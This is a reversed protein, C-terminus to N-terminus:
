VAITTRVLKVTTTANAATFLLNLVGATITADFTGLSSGTFMEGYQTLYVTTGDHLVLIEIAHYATGSTMQVLYKASRFSSTAFADVSVQAVSATTFTNSTLTGSSNIQVSSNSTLATAFVAGTFNDGAKNAPTYTLATTVDSSSLTVTGTRTNFSTVPTQSSISVTRGYADVQMSPYSYAGATVGTTALDFTVPGTTGNQTIRASSNTSLSTVGTNTLTITSGTVSTTLGTSGTFTLTGGGAVSGTGTGGALNITTSVAVNSASTVRGFADTVIVPINTSGGYTGATVGSTRLGFDITKTTPNLINIGNAVASTITLTDANSSPTISAGNASITTFGTQVAANAKAWASDSFTSVVQRTWTNRTSNYVYTIGNVVTTQNNTPSLPFSM